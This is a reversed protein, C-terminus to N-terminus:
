NDHKKNGTKRGWMEREIARTFVLDPIEECSHKHACSRCVGFNDKACVCDIKIYCLDCWHGNVGCPCRNEIDMQINDHVQTSMQDEIYSHSVYVKINEVKLQLLPAVRTIM